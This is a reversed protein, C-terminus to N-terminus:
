GCDQNAAHWLLGILAGNPVQEGLGFGQSVSRRLLGKFAHLCCELNGFCFVVGIAHSLTEQEFTLKLEL